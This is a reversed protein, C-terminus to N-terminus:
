STEEQIEKLLKLAKKNDDESWSESHWLHFSTGMQKAARAQEAWRDVPMDAWENVMVPKGERPQADQQHREIYDVWSANEFRSDETNTGFFHKTFGNRQEEDRVIDHIGKVWEPTLHQGCPPASPENGDEYLVNSYAGTSQVLKRIWAERLADPATEMM